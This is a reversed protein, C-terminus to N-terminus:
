IYGRKKLLRHLDVTYNGPLVDYSKYEEYKEQLEIINIKDFLNTNWLDQEDKERESFLKMLILETYDPVWVRLCSFGEDIHMPNEMLEDKSPVRIIGLFRDNVGYEALKQKWEKEEEAKDQIEKPLVILADIDATARQLEGELVLASGGVVYLDIVGEFGIRELEIDLFDLAELVGERGHIMM